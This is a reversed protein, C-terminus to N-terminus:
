KKNLTGGQLNSFANQFFSYPMGMSQMVQNVANPDVEEKVVNLLQISNQGLQALDDPSAEKGIEAAINFLTGMDIALDENENTPRNIEDLKPLLKNLIGQPLIKSMKQFDPDNEMMHSISQSEEKSDDNNADTTDTTTNENEKPGTAASTPNEYVIPNSVGFYKQSFYNLDDVYAWVHERSQENLKNWKTKVDLMAFLKLPCNLLKSEDRNKCYYYIDKMSTHWDTILEVREDRNPIIKTKFVTLISSTALCDPFIEKLADLLEESSFIFNELYRRKKEPNIALHHSEFLDTTNGQSM